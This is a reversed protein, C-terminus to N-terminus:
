IRGVPLTSWGGNVYDEVQALNVLSPKCFIGKGKLSTSPFLLVKKKGDITCKIPEAVKGVPTGFAANTVRDARLCIWETDGGKVRGFLYSNTEGKKNTYEGYAHLRMAYKITKSPTVSLVHKRESRSWVRKSYQPTQYDVLLESGMNFAEAAVALVGAVDVKEHVKAAAKVKAVAQAGREVQVTPAQQAAKILVKIQDQLAAITSAQDEKM